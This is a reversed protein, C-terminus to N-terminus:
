DVAARFKAALERMEKLRSQTVGQKLNVLSSGLGVAVAGNKFYERVNDLNVGGTPMLPIHPLPGHVDKLYSPGLINAPFVKIIDAGSEYATLIETPTMAGSISVVNYRKTLKITEPNVIPSIIFKAGSLIAVRATEPDLVTGAGVLIDDFASAVQEIMSLFGPTEATIELINIGGERLASAVDVINSPSAGRIVAVLKNDYIFILTSM